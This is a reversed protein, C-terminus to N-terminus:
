DQNSVQVRRGVPKRWVLVLLLTFLIVSWLYFPVGMVPPVPDGCVGTAEFLAPWQTATPLDNLFAAVADRGCTEGQHRMAWRIKVSALVGVVALSTVLWRTAAQHRPTLGARVAFVMALALFVYRQLICMTCPQLDWAVQLGEAVAVATICLAAALVSTARVGMM